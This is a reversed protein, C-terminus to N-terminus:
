PETANADAARANRSMLAAVGASLATQQLVRRRTATRIKEPMLADGRFASATLTYWDQMCLAPLAAHRGCGTDCRSRRGREGSDTFDASWFPRESSTAM